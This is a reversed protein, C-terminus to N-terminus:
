VPAYCGGYTGLDPLLLALTVGSCSIVVALACIALLPLSSIERPATPRIPAASLHQDIGAAPAALMPAPACSAATQAARPINSLCTM